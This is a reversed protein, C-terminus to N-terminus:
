NRSQGLALCVKALKKDSKRSLKQSSFQSPRCIIVKSPLVFTQGLWFNTPCKDIKGPCHLIKWIKNQFNARHIKHRTM